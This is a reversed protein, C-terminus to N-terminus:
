NDPIFAIAEIEILTTPSALNLLHIVTSTPPEDVLIPAYKQYYELELKRM